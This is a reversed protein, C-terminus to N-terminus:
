GEGYPEGNKSTKGRAPGRPSARGGRTGQYSRGLAELVSSSIADRRKM